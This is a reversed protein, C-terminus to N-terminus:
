KRGVLSRLLILNAPLNIFAMTFLNPIIIAIPNNWEILLITSVSFNVLSAIIVILFYNRSPVVSSRLLSLPYDLFAIVILSLGIIKQTYNLQFFGNSIFVALMNDAFLLFFFSPVVVISASTYISLLLKLIKQKDMTAVLTAFSNTYISLVNSYVLYPIQFIKTFTAYFAVDNTSLFANILIVDVQSVFLNLVQLFGFRRNDYELYPHNLIALSGRKRFEVFRIVIFTNFSQIFILVSAYILFLVPSSPSFSSFLFTSYLPIFQQLVILTQYREKKVLLPSIKFLFTSVGGLYFSCFMLAKTQISANLLDEISILGSLLVILGIAATFFSIRMMSTLHTRILCRFKESNISGSRYSDPISLMFGSRGLDFMSILNFVSVFVLLSGIQSPGFIGLSFRLYLASLLLAIVRSLLFRFSGKTLKSEFEIFKSMDFPLKLTMM